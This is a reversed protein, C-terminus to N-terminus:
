SWAGGNPGSEATVVPANAHKPNYCARAVTLLTFTGLAEVAAWGASEGLRSLRM